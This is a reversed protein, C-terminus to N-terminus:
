AFSFKVLHRLWGDHGSIELAMENEKKQRRNKSCDVTRWTFTKDYGKEYELKKEQEM